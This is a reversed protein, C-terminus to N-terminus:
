ACVPSEASWRNFPPAEERALRYRTERWLRAWEAPDHLESEPHARSRAVFGPFQGRGTPQGIPNYRLDFSWRVHDSTNSHSAHRTLRHLFLVDGRKMPISKPEGHIMKSPIQLGDYAPCHDLLGQEQSHLWVMLCGNEVTADWLPFRVHNNRVYYAVRWLIDFCNNSQCSLRITICFSGHQETAM